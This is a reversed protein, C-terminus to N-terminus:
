GKSWIRTNLNLDEILGVVFHLDFCTARLAVPDNVPKLYRPEFHNKPSSIAVHVCSRAFAFYVLGQCRKKFELMRSMMSTSLIYRAEIQDESYVVFAKEFEPDELKVLEGRGWAMKQLTKAFFGFTNELHDPMVVTHGQFEKHFDAVFYIGRFITHWTTTTRGKSDRTTRKYEAHLESFEFDTAGLRGKVHDEGRYRDIKTKFLDSEEFTKQRISGGHSYRLSPDIQQVIREVVEKKYRQKFEAWDNYGTGAGIVLALAFIFLFAPHQTAVVLVLTLLGGILGGVMLGKKTKRISRLRLEELPGLHPILDEAIFANLEKM